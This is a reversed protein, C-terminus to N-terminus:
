NKSDSLSGPLTCYRTHFLLESSKLGYYKKFLTRQKRKVSSCPPLKKSDTVGAVAVLVSRGKNLVRVVLLSFCATSLSASTM